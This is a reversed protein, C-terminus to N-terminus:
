KEGAARKLSENFVKAIDTGPNDVAHALMIAKVLAAAITMGNMVGAYYADEKTRFAKFNIM